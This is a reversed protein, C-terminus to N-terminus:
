EDINQMSEASMISDIEQLLKNATEYATQVYAIDHVSADPDFALLALASEATKAIMRVNHMDLM